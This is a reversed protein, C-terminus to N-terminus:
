SYLYFDSITGPQRLHVDGIIQQFSAVTKGTATTVRSTFDKGVLTGSLNHNVTFFTDIFAGEIAASTDASTTQDSSVSFGSNFGGDPNPITQVTFLVIPGNTPDDAPTAGPGVYLAKSLTLSQATKDWVFNADGAVAGGDNYQVQKDSGAASV